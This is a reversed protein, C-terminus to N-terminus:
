GDHQKSHGAIIRIKDTGVFRPSNKNWAFVGAERIEAPGQTITQVFLGSGPKFHPDLMVSASGQVLCRMKKAQGDSVILEGPPFM